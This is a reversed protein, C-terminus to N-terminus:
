QKNKRGKGKNEKVGGGQKVIHELVEFYGLKVFGEDFNENSYVDFM